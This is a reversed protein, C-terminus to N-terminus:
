QSIDPKEYEPGDHEVIKGYRNSRYWQICFAILLILEVADGGYYMVMSGIKAQDATVGIPPHSYLFKSLIGHVGLAIVLVISRYLFRHRHPTPDAYIFAAAFLYGSIFVHFHVVIHLLIHQQMLHYLSTTYLIWLVGVNMISTFIPDRLLQFIKKQMFISMRRALLVNLTRLTLTVPSGLVMCLPAFMGLLIHGVMHIYFYKHALETFPESVSIMASFVGIFWLLTRYLPWPKNLQRSVNVANMYFLLALSFPFLLIINPLLGLNLDHNAPM